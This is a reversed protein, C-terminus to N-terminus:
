LAFGFTFFFSKVRIVFFCRVSANMNISEPCVILNMRFEFNGANFDIFYCKSAVIKLLKQTKERSTKSLILIFHM